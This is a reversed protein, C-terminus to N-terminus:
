SKHASPQDPTEARGGVPTYALDFAAGIADMTKGPHAADGIVSVVQGSGRSAVAPVPRRARYYLWDRLRAHRFLRDLPARAALGSRLLWRVLPGFGFRYAAGTAIVVRNFSALQATGANADVGYRFAVGQERCDKELEEIFMDLSGSRAEVEQFLPARGADRLAGGPREAREFVTVQNRAAVLSAYSLGAPGAGIVAIREGEPLADPEYDRERGTAPNVLCHLAAGSRMDNVCTNCAVCRRVPRGAGVKAVWKADALLPRGLAVFDVKGDAVAAMAAEPNGLRGVGIVPVDVLRRVEAAYDLFMGEPYAMPPIMVEASPLSRYHGATVHIADAGAEAAMECVRVGDRPQLGGPFYDNANCRFVVPFGPVRERIRRIVELGFRARNDLSGGYDDRRHNEFPCLFQSILYGHAAHIEVMDFGCQRAREAADAFAEITQEIRERNMELPTITEATTEVVWHPVASPAIPREGCIDERTHGGGHGLQISVRAGHSKIEDTLRRLGSIFRKDWIALERRRHRGVPEPSAMEVTVLGVGGRARAAYYSVLRDTVFGEDDAYRTTMPPMVTRNRIDIGGISGADLLTAPNRPEKGGRMAHTSM